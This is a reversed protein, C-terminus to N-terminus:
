DARRSGSYDDSEEVYGDYTRWLGFRLLVAPRSSSQPLAGSRVIRGLSGLSEDCAWAHYTSIFMQGPPWFFDNFQGGLRSLEIRWRASTRQCGLGIWASFLSRRLLIASRGFRSGQLVGTSACFGPPSNQAGVCNGECHDLIGQDRGGNTM